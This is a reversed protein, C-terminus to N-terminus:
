SADIRIPGAARQDVFQRVYPDPSDDLGASDGTWVVRGRHLMAVRDALARASRMNSTVIVASAGLRKVAARVLEAIRRAAVPDLGATPEDLLLIDPASALARALGVRKQMGGSLEAPLLDVEGPGLGVEELHAGAARRAAKRSRNGPLGFAVNEWVAMSDFLAARQFLMGIRVTGPGGPPGPAGGDRGAVLIRGGDPQLLGIVSKLLVTKGASSPGILVLSEGGRLELDVRDLVPDAGFTKTVGDLLLRVEGDDGM